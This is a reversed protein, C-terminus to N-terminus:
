VFTQRVSQTHLRGWSQSLNSLEWLGSPCRNGQNSCCVTLMIRCQGEWKSWVPLAMKLLTQQISKLKYGHCILSRKSVREEVTEVTTDGRQSSNAQTQTANTCGKMGRVFHWLQPSQSPVVPPHLHTWPPALMARVSSSSQLFAAALLGQPQLVDKGKGARRLLPKARPLQPGLSAM